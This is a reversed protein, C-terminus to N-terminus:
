LPRIRVWDVQTRYSELNARELRPWEWRSSLLSLIAVKPRSSLGTTVTSIPVGDITFVYRDPAWVCGYVHWDRATIPKVAQRWRMPEKPWMTDPVSTRWYVNHWVTTDSGFHEAIDVESGGVHDPEADQLWFASHAGKPGRFRMRAEFRGHVFTRRTAIHSTHVTPVGNVDHETLRLVLKGDRHTPSLEGAPLDPDPTHRTVWRDDPGDFDYKM